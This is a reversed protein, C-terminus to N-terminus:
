VLFWEGVEDRMHEVILMEGCGVIQWNGNVEYLRLVNWMADRDVKNYAKELDMFAFHMDKGKGFIEWLDVKSCFM